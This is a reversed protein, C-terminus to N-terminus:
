RRRRRRRMSAHQPCTHIWCASAPASPVATAAARWEGGGQGGPHRRHRREPHHRRSDLWLGGLGPSSSPSCSRRPSARPTCRRAPMRCAPIQSAPPAGRRRWWAWGVAVPRRVAILVYILVNNIQDWIKALLGPRPAPPSSNPGYRERSAEVQASTLGGTTVGLRRRLPLAAGPSHPFAPRAGRCRCPPLAPTTPARAGSAPKVAVFTQVRTPTARCRAPWRAGVPPLPTGTAVTGRGGIRRPPLCAPLGRLPRNPAALCAPRCPPREGPGRLPPTAYWRTRAHGTGGPWPFRNQAFKIAWGTANRGTCARRQTRV